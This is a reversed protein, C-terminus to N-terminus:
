CYPAPLELLKGFMANRLDMVVRNGVWNICFHSIYDAIGRVVFIAIIIFPMWRMIRENKEVFTGDLLPKLVAPLAPETLAVVVMGVIALGFVGRYPRVYRLLRLYLQTSTLTQM